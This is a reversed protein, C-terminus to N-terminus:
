GGRCLDGAGTNYKGGYSQFRASNDGDTVGSGQTVAESKAGESLVLEVRSGGQSGERAEEMSTRWIGTEREEAVMEEKQRVGDEQDRDEEYMIKDERDGDEEPDENGNGRGWKLQNAAM